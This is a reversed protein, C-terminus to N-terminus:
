RTNESVLTKLFCSHRNLDSFMDLLNIIKRAGDKPGREEKGKQLIVCAIVGSFCISDM